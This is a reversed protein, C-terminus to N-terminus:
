ASSSTTKSNSVNVKGPPLLEEPVNLPQMHLLEIEWYGSTLNQKYRWQLVGNQMDQPANKLAEQLVLYNGNESEELFTFVGLDELIDNDLLESWIDNVVTDFHLSSPHYTQLVSKWVFVTNREDYNNYYTFKIQESGLVLYGRNEKKNKVGRSANSRERTIRNLSKNREMQNVTNQKEKEFEEQLCDFEKIKEDIVAQLEQKEKYYKAHLEGIKKEYQRKLESIERKYYECLSDKERDSQNKAEVVATEARSQKNEMAYLEQIDMIYYNANISGFECPCFLGKKTRFAYSGM